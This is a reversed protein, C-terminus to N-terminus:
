REGPRPPVHGDLNRGLNPQNSQKGTACMGRVKCAYLNKPVHLIETHNKGADRINRRSESRSKNANLRAAQQCM